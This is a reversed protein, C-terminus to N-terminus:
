MYPSKCIILFDLQNKQLSRLKGGAWKIQTEIFYGELIIFFLM